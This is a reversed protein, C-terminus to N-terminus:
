NEPDDLKNRIIEFNELYKDLKEVTSKVKTLNNKVRQFQEELSNIEDM